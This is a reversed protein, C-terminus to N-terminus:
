PTWTDKTVYNGSERRELVINNGSRIFRWTGDTASPGFYLAAAANELEVRSLTDGFSFGIFAGEGNVEINNSITGVGFNIGQGLASPYIGLKNIFASLGSTPTVVLNGSSDAKFSCLNADNYHLKLQTDDNFIQVLADNGFRASAWVDIQAPSGSPTIALTGSSDVVFNAFHTLSDFQVQMFGDDVAQVVVKGSTDYINKHRHGNTTDKVNGTHEYEISDLGITDILDQDLQNEIAHWPAPDGPGNLTFDKYNSM